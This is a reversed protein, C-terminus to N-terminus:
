HGVGGAVYRISGNASITASTVIARETMAPV